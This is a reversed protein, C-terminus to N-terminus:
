EFNENLWLNMQSWIDLKKINIKSNKTRFLGGNGDTGYKKDVFNDLIEEVMEADFNDNDFSFLGLNEFMNWFWNSTRDGLDPDWLYTNEIRIALAIMMELLSCRYSILGYWFTNSVEFEQAFATRLALGDIARDEDYSRTSSMPDDTFIFDKNFLRRLVWSYADDFSTGDPGIIQVQEILWDYYADVLDTRNM